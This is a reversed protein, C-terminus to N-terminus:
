NTQPLKIFKYCTLLWTIVIDNSINFANFSSKEWPVSVPGVTFAEAKLQAKTTCVFKVWKLARMMDALIINLQQM